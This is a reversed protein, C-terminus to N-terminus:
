REALIRWGPWEAGPESRLNDAGALRQEDVLFHVPFAGREANLLDAPSSRGVEANWNGGAALGDAHDTNLGGVLFAAKGFGILTEKGGDSGGDPDGEMVGVEKFFRALCSLNGFFRIRGLTRKKGGNAMLQARRKCGHKPERLDDAAPEFLTKEGEDALVVPLDLLRLQLNDFIE